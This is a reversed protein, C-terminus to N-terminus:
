PCMYSTRTKWLNIEINSKSLDLLTTAPSIFYKM